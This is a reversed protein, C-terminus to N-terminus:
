VQIWNPRLNFWGCRLNEDDEDSSTSNKSVDDDYEGIREQLSVDNTKVEDTKLDNDHNDNKKKEEESIDNQFGENQLGGNEVKEM